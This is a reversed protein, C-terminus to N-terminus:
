YRPAGLPAVGPETTQASNIPVVPLTNSQPLPNSQPFTKSQILNVQTTYPTTGNQMNITHMHVVKWITYGMLLLILGGASGIVRAGGYQHGYIVATAAQAMMITGVVVGLLVLYRCFIRITPLGTPIISGTSSTTPPQDQMYTFQNPWKMPKQGLRDSVIQQVAGTAANPAPKIKSVPAPSLINQLQAIQSNSAMVNKNTPTGAPVGPVAPLGTLLAMVPKAQQQTLQDTRIAQVERYSRPFGGSPLQTMSKTNQYIHYTIRNTGTQNAPFNGQLTPSLLPPKGQTKTVGVGNYKSSNFTSTYDTKTSRPPSKYTSKADGSTQPLPTSGSGPPPPAVGPAPQGSPFPTGPPTWNFIQEPSPVPGTPAPPQGALAMPAIFIALLLCVIAFRGVTKLFTQSIVQMCM